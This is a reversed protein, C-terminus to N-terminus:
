TRIASITASAVIALKSARNAILKTSTLVTGQEIYERFIQVLNLLNTQEQRNDTLGAAKMILDRAKFNLSLVEKKKKRETEEEEEEEEEKDEEGEEEEESNDEKDQKAQL